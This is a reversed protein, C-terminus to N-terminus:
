VTNTTIAHKQAPELTYFNFLHKRQQSDSIETLACSNVPNRIHWNNKIFSWRLSKRVTPSPSCGPRTPPLHRLVPAGAQRPKIASADRRLLREVKLGRRGREAGEGRPALRLFGAVACWLRSPVPPPSYPERLRPWCSITVMGSRSGDAKELQVSM